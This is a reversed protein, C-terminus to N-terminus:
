SWSLEVLLSFVTSRQLWCEVKWHPVVILATCVLLGIRRVLTVIYASFLPLVAFSLALISWGGMQSMGM